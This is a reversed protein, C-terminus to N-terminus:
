YGRVSLFESPLSDLVADGQGPPDAGFDGRQRNQRWKM